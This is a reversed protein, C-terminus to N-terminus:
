NMDDDPDRAPFGSGDANSNQRQLQQMAAQEQQLLEQQLKIFAEPEEVSM